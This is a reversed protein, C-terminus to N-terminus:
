SFHRRIKRFNVRSVAALRKVRNIAMPIYTLLDGATLSYENSKEMALDASLGHLFVASVAASFVDVGQAMLGGIMGVLVDGSGATALGSNGTPNVYIRGSPSAVITPAGKLVVVGGLSRAYDATLDIRQNNADAPTYGTLRSFEGPHPTIVFPVKLRHFLSPRQAIINLADADIVAPSSILPLIEALFLATEENTTLGPGLIVSSCNKLLPALIAVSRRAITGSATEPLVIKVAELARNEIIESISAPVAARVYGAGTKFAARVSLVAAGSYGRAGAVTVVTGFTGKHGAPTRRPLLHGIFEYSPVQPFGDAILDMPIGIDVLHLHGCLEHGPYLWHGRKPLGMIATVDAVVCTREFQGTDGNIGSPIDVALVLADSENIMEFLRAYRLAPAGHFGTGFLADVICAPRFTRIVRALEAPGANTQLDFSSRRAIQYNVLADGALARAPITLLVQVTCGRNRAHRAIVLGDGGNNGPGCVVLVRLDRLSRYQSLLDVCGRGANEMLVASPIGLDRQAWRDIKKMEENTVIRM